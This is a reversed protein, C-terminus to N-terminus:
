YAQTPEEDGGRPAKSHLEDHASSVYHLNELLTTRPSPGTYITFDESVSAVVYLLMVSTQSTFDRTSTFRDIQAM